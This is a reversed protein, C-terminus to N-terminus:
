ETPTKEMNVVVKGRTRGEESHAYADRIEEFSYTRDIYPKLQGKECMFRLSELDQHTSKVSIFKLKKGPTSRSFISRLVLGPMPLTSVFVGKRKLFPKLKGFSLNAVTDFILHYNGSGEISERTYDIVKDAGLLRVFDANRGSCVATVHAGFSKAMQVAIHGVGGSAGNILIRNDPKLLGLFQLSQYVTLGVLPLAAAEEFGLNAPMRGIKNSDIVIKEAHAGGKISSSMGWVETGPKYEPDNSTEVVGAFDSGLIRPFKYRTLFRLEGNRVKWDVPNISVAKIKILVQNKGLAPAPLEGIAMVEPGGYKHIFVAKMSDVTRGM